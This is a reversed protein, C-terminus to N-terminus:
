DTEMTDDMASSLDVPESKEGEMDDELDEELVHCKDNRKHALYTTRSQYVNKCDDCSIMSKSGTHVVAVHFKLNKERKFSKKCPPYDSCVIKKLKRTTSLIPIEPCKLHSFNTVCTTPLSISKILKTIVVTCVGTTTNMWTSTKSMSRSVPHSNPKWEVAKTHACTNAM